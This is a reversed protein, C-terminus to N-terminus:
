FQLTGDTLQYWEKICLLEEVVKPNLSSRKWSIIRQGKFFVRELAASTAPIALYIWAMQSLMPFRRQRAFWYKLIDTGEPETEEKLYLSLEAHVSQPNSNNTTDYLESTFFSLQKNSKKSLLASSASPNLNPQPHQEDYTELLERFTEVITDVSVHLYDMIFAENKKWFSTKFTPDLIMASVYDPKKVADLLYQEIKDVIQIAPQILQAQDYLGHQVRKLHKMLVIYVPLAKNLTPYKSACLMDTAESLPLLLKM